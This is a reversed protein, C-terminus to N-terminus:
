QQQLSIVLISMRGVKDSRLETFWINQDPGQTIRYMVTNRTPVQYNHYRYIDTEVIYQLLM